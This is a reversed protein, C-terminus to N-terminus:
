ETAEPVPLDVVYLVYGRQDPFADSRAHFETGMPAYLLVRILHDPLITSEVDVRGGVGFSNGILSRHMAEFLEDEALEEPEVAMPTGWVGGWTMQWNRRYDVATLFRLGDTGRNALILNDGSATLEYIRNGEWLYALVANRPSEDGLALTLRSLGAEDRQFERIEIGLRPGQTRVRHLLTRTSAPPMEVHFVGADLHIAGNVRELQQCTSYLRGSGGHTVDYTDGNVAALCSWGTVDYLGDDIEYAIAATRIRNTEGGGVRGIEAFLLSFGISAGLFAAYFNRWHTARRGVVYCGPYLAILYLLVGGYILWWRRHFSVAERLGDFLDRNRDWSMVGGFPSVGFYGTEPKNTIVADDKLIQTEATRADIEAARLPIRRVVGNGVFFRDRQRNLLDLDGSFNPYVGNENLILYVRGGRKVWELFALERAGQWEPPRDFVVCRLADTGTISAPFRSPHM